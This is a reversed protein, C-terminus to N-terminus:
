KRNMSGVWANIKVKDWEAFDTVRRGNQGLKLVNMTRHWGEWLDYGDIRKVVIIPENHGDASARKKQVQMREADNYVGSPNADGFEREEFHKLTNFSFDTPRVNIVQLKWDLRNLQTFLKDDSGRFLDHMVYEPINSYKQHLQRYLGKMRMENVLEIFERLLVVDGDIM